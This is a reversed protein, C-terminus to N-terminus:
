NLIDRNILKRVYIIIAISIAWGIIAGILGPGGIAGLWNKFFIHYVTMLMGFVFASLFLYFTSRRLLFLFIAGLFNLVGIVITFLIDLITQSKFYATQAENLPIVGSNILAFSVLTWGASIFYFITIVWILKPRKRQTSEPSITSANNM